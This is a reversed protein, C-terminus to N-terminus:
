MGVVRFLNENSLAGTGFNSLTSPTKIHRRGPDYSACQSGNTFLITRMLKAPAPINNSMLVFCQLPLKNSSFIVRLWTIVISSWKSRKGWIWDGANQRLEFPNLLDIQLKGDKSLNVDCNCREPSRNFSFLGLFNENVERCCQDTRRYCKQLTCSQFCHWHSNWSYCTKYNLKTWVQGLVQVCHGIHM